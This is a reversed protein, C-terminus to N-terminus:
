GGAAPATPLSSPPLTVPRKRKGWPIRQVDQAIGLRDLVKRAYAPATIKRNSKGLRWAFTTLKRAIAAPQSHRYPVAYTLLHWAAVLLKRAIAVIAKNHGLRPELRALEAIWHPHTNAAVHAAEVMASRLDKRGAKTIRGTRTTLGSDHIRAGLGSYGVLQKSTPFRAIDGVAGLFALITILGFGPIQALLGVREDTAALTDLDNEIQAKGALSVPLTLWWSRLQPALLNGEAPLTHTRHLVAYLRNRAQTALRVMKSRHAVLLRLDRV